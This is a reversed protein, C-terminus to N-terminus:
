QYIDKRHGVHFITITQLPDNIEYIVRYDGARIRYGERETLKKVGVPRPNDAL